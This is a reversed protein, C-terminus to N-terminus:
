QRGQPVGGSAKVNLKLAKNYSWYRYCSCTDWLVRRTARPPDESNKGDTRVQYTRFSSLVARVACRGLVVRVVVLPAVEIVRGNAPVDGLYVAQLVSIKYTKWNNRTSRDRGERKGGCFGYCAILQVRFSVHLATVRIYNESKSVYKKWATSGQEM